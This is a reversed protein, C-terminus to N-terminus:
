TASMRGTALTSRAADLTDALTQELAITPEWGTATRLRSADGCVVPVDAARLRAPDVRVSVPVTALGVLTDVVQRLPTARGSAVNYSPAFRWWPHALRFEREM